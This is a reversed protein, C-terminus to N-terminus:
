VDGARRNRSRFEDFGENWNERRVIKGIMVNSVGYKKALAVTGYQKSNPVYENRINVVDSKTLKASPNSEGSVNFLGINKAHRMNQFSNCWELNGLYNDTKVGNIHNVQEYGNPNPLFAEAVLRHVRFSKGEGNKHLRVYAYGSPFVTAKKTANRKVSTVNGLDDIEYLGEYGKIEKKM